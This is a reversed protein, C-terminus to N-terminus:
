PRRDRGRAAARGAARPDAVQGVAALRRASRAWETAPTGVRVWDPVGVVPSVMFPVLTARIPSDTASTANSTPPRSITMCNEPGMWLVFSVAYKSLLLPM